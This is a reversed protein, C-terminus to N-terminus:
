ESPRDPEVTPRRQRYNLNDPWIRLTPKRPLCLRAQPASMMLRSEPCWKSLLRDADPPSAVAFIVHFPREVLRDVSTRERGIADCRALGLDQRDVVIDISVPLENVAARRFPFVDLKNM